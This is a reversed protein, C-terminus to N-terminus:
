WADLSSRRAPTRSEDLIATSPVGIGAGPPGAVM